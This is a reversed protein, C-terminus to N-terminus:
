HDQRSAIQSKLHDIEDELTDIEANKEKVSKRHRTDAEDLWTQLEGESKELEKVRSLLRQRHEENTEIASNANNLAQELTIIQNKLKKLGEIQSQQEELTSEDRRKAEILERMKEDERESKDCQALIEENCEKISKKLKEITEVQDEDANKTEIKEVTVQEKKQLERQFSRSRLFLHISLVIINVCLLAVASYLMIHAAQPTIGNLGPLLNTYASNVLALIAVLAVAVIVVGELTGAIKQPHSLIERTPSWQSYISTGVFSPM